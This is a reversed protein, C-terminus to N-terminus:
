VIQYFLSDLDKFIMTYINQRNKLFETYLHMKDTPTRVIHETQNGGEVSSNNNTNTATGTDQDYNYETVYQGDRVDQLANQPTNSFRRDSTTSSTTNNTGTNNVTRSDTLTRDTIEGDAFINWGNISEFLKNYMPMIENLKVNLAIKFATVTEYGIRRMMFHNLIMCEFESKTMGTALPYDFDFFMARGASALDKIKAPTDNAFNVYSNLLSYITPPEDQSIGLKLINPVLPYLPFMPFM